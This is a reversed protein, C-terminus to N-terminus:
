NMGNRKNNWRQVLNILLLVLFSIMLMLVALATAGTYDSQELKATILLPTIESVMPINGAIFIVSGYEGAARAFAMAAGTLLAPAIAPFIVKAFIQWRNAGLCTAADELEPELDELVPQVTRVIFPLSIFILAIVIGTPTYAIRIGLSAFLSGLLGNPAYLTTLAIGAVATPLAFPLDIFADILKKGPFTYRVLVWATVLGFVVNILVAILSTGFTVYLSHIVRENLITKLFGEIGSQAAWGFLVAFPILVILSLWFLTIGLTVGFGPLVSYQKRLLTM